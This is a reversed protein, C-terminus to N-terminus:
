ATNGEWLVEMGEFELSFEFLYGGRVRLPLLDGFLNPNLDIDASGGWVTEMEARTHSEVTVDNAILQSRANLTPDEIERRGFVTFAFPHWPHETPADLGVQCAMQTTGNKSAKAHVTRGSEPAVLDRLEGPFRTMRVDAMESSYGMERFKRTSWDRDAHHEIFFGGNRGDLECPIIVGAEYLTSPRPPLHGHAEILDPDRIVAEGIYLFAEGPRILEFPDPLRDALAEPSTEFHTAIVTEGVSRVDNSLTVM